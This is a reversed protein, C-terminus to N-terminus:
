DHTCYLGGQLMVQKMERVFLVGRLVQLELDQLKEKMEKHGASSVDLDELKKRTKELKMKSRHCILICDAQDFLQISGNQIYSDYNLTNNVQSVM